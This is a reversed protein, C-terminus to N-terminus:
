YPLPLARLALPTDGSWALWVEAKYIDYNGDTALPELLPIHVEASRDDLQARTGGILEVPSRSERLGRLVCQVDLTGATPPRYFTLKVGNVPDASWSIEGFTMPRRGVTFYPPSRLVFFDTMSITTRDRDFAAEKGSPSPNRVACDIWDPNQGMFDRSAFYPGAQSVNDVFLFGGPTLRRASAQVDFNAFEYDHHGDILVVDPRINENDLQMFFAMSDMQHYRVRQKLETPWRPMIAAVREADFPSVTHLMGNGNAQLARALGESTGAKYTGIEVVHDPRLNRIVTYLLAQAVPTLLSRSASPSDAFFDKTANFEESQCILPVPNSVHGLDVRVFPINSIPAVQLARDENKSMRIEALLRKVFTRRFWDAFM